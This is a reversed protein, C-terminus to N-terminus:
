KGVKKLFKVFGKSVSIETFGIKRIMNISANNDKHIEAYATLFGDILMRKMMTKTAESAFGQRQFDTEGIMYFVEFSSDQEDSDKVGVYGIRANSEKEIVMFDFRLLDKLYTNHYWDVHQEKTIPKPNRFYKILEPNSRWKVLFDYDIESIGRYILRESKFSENKDM